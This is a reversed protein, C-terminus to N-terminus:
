RRRRRRRAGRLSDSSTDGILKCSVEGRGVSCTAAAPSLVFDVRANGTVHAGRFRITRARVNRSFREGTADTVGSHCQVRVEATGKGSLQVYRVICGKPTLAM